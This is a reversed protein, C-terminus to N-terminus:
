WMVENGRFVPGDACVRKRVTGESTQLSISCGLCVGYGCGMRGDMSIQLRDSSGDADTLSVLAKLMPEPGCALYHDASLKNANICDCVNGKFLGEAPMDATRFVRCGLKEFEEAGFPHERFGLVATTDVNMEALRRAAFLLVSTGVGGGALLATSGPKEFVSLDFGNGLPGATRLVSGSSLDAMETTGEGVIEYIISVTRSDPDADNIGFPRPLILRDPDPYINIFQGPQAAESLEESMLTMKMIGPAIEKNEFVEANYITKM